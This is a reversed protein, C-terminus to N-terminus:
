WYDMALLLSSPNFLFDQIEMSPFFPPLSLLACAFPTTRSAVESSFRTVKLTATGTSVIKLVPTSCGWLGPNGIVMPTWFRYAFPANVAHNWAM